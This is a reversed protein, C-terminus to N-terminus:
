RGFSIGVGVRFANGGGDEVVRIYDAGLRLGVPGSGLDLGAGLQLASDSSSDDLGLFSASTRAVGFLAQVFPAGANFRLGGMYTNISLDVEDVEKMNGTVQGVVSLPGGLRVAIDGYWGAPFNSLEDVDADLRLFNWGGSVNLAPAQAQAPVAAGLLMACVGAAILIGVKM